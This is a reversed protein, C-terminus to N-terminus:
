RKGRKKRNRARQGGKRPGGNGGGPGGPKPTPSQSRDKTRARGEAHDPRTRSTRAQGDGASKQGSPAPVRSRLMVTQQGMQWANTTVWYVLVGAPLNISIFGLFVPMIKTLMQMQAAQPTQTARQMQKQQYWTTFVMLGVLAFYPFRAMLDTPCTVGAAQGAGGAASCSLNMFDGVFGAGRDMIDRALASGAPLVSNPGTRTLVQYLAFFVPLQLLLPLCGGLPNVRNEKYLKMMEENLKPRNGKYKTQLEKVKPQIAQMAHMSRTQKVTLPLLLIRVAVTLLVIAVGYSPILDYFFALANGLLQLLSNWVEVM